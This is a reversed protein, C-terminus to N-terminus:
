YLFSKTTRTRIIHIHFIIIYFLRKKNFNVKKRGKSSLFIKKKTYTNQPKLINKKAVNTTEILFINLAETDIIIVNIM